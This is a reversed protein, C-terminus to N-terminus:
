RLALLMSDPQELYQKWLNCFRAMTAGDIVRHDGSWSVQMISRAEVQGQSNFRPLQQLKGLAVIAVEPQNIIPTAVTGGIAGINSITITGGKLDGQSLRGDRAQETLRTVENAIDVISLQQCAKINPVMLGLKGDVAMGINHDAKYTLETCDANVQSNVIPFQKIALSLAKIFFPMMTLKVGQKALGDKLGARLAILNTLDIEEAYTFHPITTVSAVMQKAMAARVGRIPEVTDGQSVVAAAAVAPKAASCTAAPASAPKVTAGSAFAEVDEKYIRGKDGSGRVQTLTVGREAAFRRVAPSALVKHNGTFDVASAATAVQVPAAAATAQVAVSSALPADGDVQREIAFLPAHVKAIDGKGYYLKVVKGSYKAPIQVLAKDTMVDCVPDDENIMQGETVSWDVIECEVIGEGIDPLIFDEVVTGSASAAPQSSAPATVAAVPTAPAAPKEAAVDGAVLMAFLPAHVKAIDGKNYYLKSVTGTHMAPIQVLAKDTMVDCVPQDEVIADGEKVLWEVIECEVIGEGIDPLIFDLSM